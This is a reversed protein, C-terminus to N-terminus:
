RKRGRTRKMQTRFEGTEELIQRVHRLTKIYVEEPELEVARKYEAEADLLRGQAEYAIGLNYHAAASNPSSEVVSRFVEEAEKWLGSRAYKIGRRDGGKQFRRKVIVYHPTIQGVFKRVVEDTLKSLIEESSPMRAIEDPGGAKMNFDSSISRAALLEGTEVDVIRFNASVIGKLIKYRQDVLVRKKIEERVKRKKGTFINKKEVIRYKGTGIEKEVKEVGTEEEVKFATVEGFILGDVGLMRGVSSATSEDVIGLMSLKHEDLLDKLKRRELVKFCGTEVLRSALVGSLRQGAGAPGQFDAVAIRQVGSIDVDPPKLVRIKAVPPACSASMLLMTAFVASLLSTRM